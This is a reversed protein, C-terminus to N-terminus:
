CFNFISINGQKKIKRQYIDSFSNNDNNACTGIRNFTSIDALVINRSDITNTEFSSSDIIMYCKYKSGSYDDITIGDGRTSQNLLIKSEIYQHWKM